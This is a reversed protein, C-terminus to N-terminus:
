KKLDQLFEQLKNLDFGNKALWPTLLWSQWLLAYCSSNYKTWFSNTMPLLQGWTVNTMGAAGIGPVVTCHGGWSGPTPDAGSDSEGFLRQWWHSKVGVTTDWTTQGQASLPLEIGTYVSGFLWIAQRIHALNLPDIEVRALLQEGAFGNKVVYDLVTDEDAGNDTASNGPIYGSTASYLDIVQNDTVNFTKYAHAAANMASHAVGAATCNSLSDNRFMQWNKVKYEYYVRSPATPVADAEIFDAFQLRKLGSRRLNKGLKYIKM